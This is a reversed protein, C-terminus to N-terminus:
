FTVTQKCLKEIFKHTKKEKRKEPLGRINRKCLGFKGNVKSTKKYKGHKKYKNNNNAFFTSIIHWKQSLTHLSLKDELETACIEFDNVSKQIWSIKYDFIFEM